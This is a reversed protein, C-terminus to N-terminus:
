EGSNHQNVHIRTKMDIGKSPESKDAYGLSLEAAIGM